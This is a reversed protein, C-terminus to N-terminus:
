VRRIKLDGLTIECGDNLYDDLEDLDLEVYRIGYTECLDYLNYAYIEEKEDFWTMIHDYVSRVKYTNLKKM